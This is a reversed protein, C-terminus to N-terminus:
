ADREPIDGASRETAQKSPLHAPPAAAIVAVSNVPPQEALAFKGAADVTEDASFGPTLEGSNMLHPHTEPTPQGAASSM